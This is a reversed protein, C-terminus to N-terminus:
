MCRRFGELTNEMHMRSGGRHAIKMVRKGELAENFLPHQYSRKRHLLTPFFFLLTSIGVYGVAAALLMTSRDM